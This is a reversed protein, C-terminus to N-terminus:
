GTQRTYFFFCKTSHYLNHLSSLFHYNVIWPYFFEGPPFGLHCNLQYQRLKQAYKHQALFKTTFQGMYCIRLSAPVLCKEQSDDRSMVKTEQNKILILSINAPSRKQHKRM